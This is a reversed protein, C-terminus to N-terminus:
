DGLILSLGTADEFRFTEVSRYGAPLRRGSVEGDPAESVVWLRRRRAIFARAEPSGASVVPTRPPLDREVYFRLPYQIGLSFSGDIVVDGPRWRTDMQEVAGRADPFFGEESHSRLTGLVGALLALGLTASRLFRPATVGALSILVLMAPVGVAAYRTNLTNKGLIATAILLAPAAIAVVFLLEEEPDRRLLLRRALLGLSVLVVVAGLVQVATAAEATRVDFPAGLVRVAHGRSLEGFAGLGGNPHLGYQHIMLPSWALFVAAPAAVFTLRTRTPFRSRVLVWACLPAVVLLAVYHLCLAGAAAVAAAALWRRSDRRSAEVTALLAVAAALMLFAYPRAQQAYGLVLPSLGALLGSVVGAAHGGLICGTRWLVLVLGVGAAVSPLRPVWDESSGFVGTWADLM